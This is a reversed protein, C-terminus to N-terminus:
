RVYGLARLQRLEDDSMDINDAEYSEAASLGAELIGQLDAVLDDDASDTSLEDPDDGLDYARVTGSDPAVILKLDGVVVARLEESASPRFTAAVIPPPATAREAEIVPVLSRGMRNMPDPVNLLDMVTPLLDVLAVPTDITVGQPLRGPWSIVLPVRLQSEYLQNIHGMGGVGGHDGLGEGHDATFIVLTDDLQGAERLADLLRGLHQDTYEVEEVYRRRAEPIDLTRDARLRLTTQVTEGTDNQVDFRAPLRVRYVQDRVEECRSRCTLIVDIDLVHFDRLRVGNSLRDDVARLMLPSEGPPVTIPMSATSADVQFTSVRSRNYNVRVEPGNPDPPAYPEHPDSYHAWLFFPAGTSRASWALMADTMDAAPKWWDFGFDDHYEDFGQSLGAPRKLVGLSVFAATERYGRHLLEALTLHSTALSQFNSRVGHSTPLLSTFMSSHSPVTIPVHTYAREFRVGAAALADMNPTAPAGGYSGVHDARLTDVVILLVNTALNTDGIRGLLRPREWTVTGGSDAALARFVVDVAEGAHASLDLTQRSALRPTDLRALEAGLATRVVVSSGTVADGGLGFEIAGDLPITTSFTLESGAPQEIGDGAVNLSGVAVDPAHPEPAPSITVWDFAAALMRPLPTGAGDSEPGVEAFKFAITNEGPSVTEPPIPLTYTQEGPQLTLEGLVVRNARVTVRQPEGSPLAYPWARFHLWDTAPDLILLDISADLGTAWAFSLGDTPRTEPSSWGRATTALDFAPDAASFETGPTQLRFTGRPAREAFDYVPVLDDSGCGSALTAAIVTVTLLRIGGM